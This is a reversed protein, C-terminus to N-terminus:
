LRKRYGILDKLARLRNFWGAKFVTQRPNFKLIANFWNARWDIVFEAARPNSPTFGKQSMAQLCEIARATGSNVALDFVCLCLPYPLLDCHATLWYNQEYIGDRELDTMRRVPQRQVGHELRWKNYAGQTVGQNTHIIEGPFLQKIAGDRPNSSMGGEQELTFALSKQFDTM